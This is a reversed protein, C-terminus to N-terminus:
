EDRIVACCGSFIHAVDVLRSGVGQAEEVAGAEGFHLQTHGALPDGVPISERLRVRTDNDLHLRM